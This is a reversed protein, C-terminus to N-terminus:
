RGAVQQLPIRQEIVGDAPIHVAAAKSLYPRIVEPNAYEFDLKDVAFLLYDGAPVTEYDFSGDSETQFGLPEFCGSRPTLVVLVEPVPTDGSMAFGKLRGAEEGVLIKLHVGANGALELVGDKLPAGEASMEEIFMRASGYVYPRFRGEIGSFQFAGDPEVAAQIAEGTAEDVLAMQSVAEKPPANKYTLKGAVVTQPRLTLDVATEGAGVDIVRYATKGMGEFRLTYRGPPVADLRDLAVGGIGEPFLRAWGPCSESDGGSGPCRLLVSGATAVGLAIDAQKEAGSKLVIAAARGFEVVGPYYTPPYGPTSDSTQGAARLRGDGKAARPPRDVVAVYYTGAPLLGIRYQGRDDTQATEAPLIRKRGAAVWDRLLQVHADRVPEGEEDVVSGSIAGPPYWRLALHATDQGPGAIVASGFGMSPDGSGYEMRWLNREFFLAYKGQPVDFWFKGDAATTLARCEGSEDFLMVRARELPTNRIGDTVVGAVPYTRAAAAVAVV